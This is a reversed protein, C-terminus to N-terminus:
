KNALKNKLFDIAKVPTPDVQNLMALYLSVYDGFLVLSLMQSMASAGEGNLVQYYIGAQELLQQTISYRLSIREQLLNSDLLIVMTQHTLEEPLSYGVVANHNLESFVEYFALTKSNENLQTKWRHAVEATIGAGYILALRGYLNKALLKAPNQSTPVNEDIREALANLKACTEEFDRSKNPILNLKQLMGLLIFFSFPLAARPQAKYDYSFVPVGMTDCLSKLKGGATVALKKAKTDFAQEFASLTEETMGSYSSAIILTKEDVYKPLDYDRCVIIQTPTENEVLSRVLDGGIASGGMGLIIVKNVQSYDKPLNYLLAMQWAQESLRPFDHICRLM